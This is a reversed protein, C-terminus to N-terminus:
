PRHVRDKGSAYGGPWVWHGRGECFRQSRLEIETGCAYAGNRRINLVTLGRALGRPREPDPVSEAHTHLGGTVAVAALAGAGKLVSRRKM